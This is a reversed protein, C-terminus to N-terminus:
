RPPQVATGRFAADSVRRLYDANPNFESRRVAADYSFLVLGRARLERAANIKELTSEVPIRWSGIGAWVRNPGAVEVAYRIQERFTPTERAYAMLAAVDLFGRRLWDAWDQFRKEYADQANAFVDASVIVNPNRKKVAYYVREVLDTIQERRFRDYQSGFSDAYVLPDNQELGAFYTGVSDSLQPRLWRKFRDLSVRSYDYDPAPYRVYDFNLGDVDYKELVDLWLSVIHEKTEPSAPSLYVGEVHDRNAKSYEIIRARFQPDRPDLAFLERALPYPVALLDPRANYLHEPESPPTDMNALLQTNLWAHVALGRTRAEKLVLALPDFDPQAALAPPRPEWRGNYYADGRGRVQVILTNFGNEHARRVLAKVSDPHTLTTRVVWVARVEAPLPRPGAPREAGRPACGITLWALLLLPIPKM